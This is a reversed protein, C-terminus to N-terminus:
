YCNKDIVEFNDGLWLEELRGLFEIEVNGFWVNIVGFNSVGVFLKCLM